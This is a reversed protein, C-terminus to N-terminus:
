LLSLLDSKEWLVALIDAYLRAADDVPAHGNPNAVQLGNFSMNATQLRGKSM